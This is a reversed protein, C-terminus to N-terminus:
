STWLTLFAKITFVTIQQEVIALDETNNQVEVSYSFINNILSRVSLYNIYTVSLESERQLKYAMFALIYFQLLDLGVKVDDKPDEQPPSDEAEPGTHEAINGLISNMQNEYVWATSICSPGVSFRFKISEDFYQM